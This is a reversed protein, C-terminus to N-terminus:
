ACPAQWEGGFFVQLAAEGKKVFAYRPIFVVVKIQRGSLADALGRVADKIGGAGVIGEFERTVLCVSRIM